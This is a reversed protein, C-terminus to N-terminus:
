INGLKKLFDEEFFFVTSVEPLVFSFRFADLELDVDGEGEGKGDGDFFDGVFDTLSRSDRGAEGRDDVFPDIRGNLDPRYLEVSYGRSMWGSLRGGSSRSRLREANEAM